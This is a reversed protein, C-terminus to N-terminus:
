EDWEGKFMLEETMIKNIIPQLRHAAEQINMGDKVLQLLKKHLALRETIFMTETGKLEAGIIKFEEGEYKEGQYIYSEYNYQSYWLRMYEYNFVEQGNTFIPIPLYNALQSYIQAIELYPNLREEKIEKKKYHGRLKRSSYKSIDFLSIQQPDLDPMKVEMNINIMTDGGKLEM